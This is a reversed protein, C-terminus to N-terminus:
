NHAYNSLSSNSTLVQGFSFVEKEKCFIQRSMYKFYFRLHLTTKETPLVVVLQYRKAQNSSKTWVTTLGWFQKPLLLLWFRTWFFLFFHVQELYVGAYLCTELIVMISYSVTLTSLLYINGPNGLRKKKKVGSWM